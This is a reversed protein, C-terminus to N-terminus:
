QYDDFVALTVKAHDPGRVPRNSLEIDYIRDYQVIRMSGPDPSTLVLRNAESYAIRNYMPDVALRDTVTGKDVTFVLIQGPTLAFILNGDASSTVDLIQGQLAIKQLDKWQINAQASRAALVMALM